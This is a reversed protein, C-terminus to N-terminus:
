IRLYTGNPDGARITELRELGVHFASSDKSRMGSAAGCRIDLGFVLVEGEATGVVVLCGPTSPATTATTPTAIAGMQTVSVCTCQVGTAFAEIAINVNTHPSPSVLSVSILKFLGPAVVHM